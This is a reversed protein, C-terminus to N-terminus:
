LFALFFYQKQMPKKRNLIPLAFRGGQGKVHNQFGIIICGKEANRIRDLEKKLCDFRDKIKGKQM